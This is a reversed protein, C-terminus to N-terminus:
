LREGVAVCPDVDIRAVREDLRDLREGPARQAGLDQGSDAAEAREYLDRLLVALRHQDRAGVADARLELKREREVPVVRDADVQDRHADVVDQDLSGLREEKQIVEDALPEVNADRGFHDLSDRATALDRAARQDAAFSGLV